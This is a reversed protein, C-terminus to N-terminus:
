KTVTYVNWTAYGMERCVSKTEVKEVWNCLKWECQVFLRQSHKLGKATGILITKLLIM